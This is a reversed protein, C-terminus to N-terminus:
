DKSSRRQGFVAGIDDGLIEWETSERRRNPGFSYIYDFRRRGERTCQVWYPYNWPDLFFSARDENLGQAVLGAFTGNYLDDEGYKEVFSYVRKNIHRKGQCAQDLKLMDLRLANTETRAAELLEPQAGRLHESAYTLGYGIVGVVAWAVVVQHRQSGAPPPGAPRWRGLAPLAAFLFGLGMVMEVWEGSFDWPYSDFVLHAGLFVPILEVPPAEIAVKELFRRIPKSLAVLPLLVGYGLLVAKVALKRWDTSIVNHINLEQQFNQELFYNPPQYAFIRQAWSIEEMAVFFCFLSVGALFWPVLRTERRQRVAAIAFIAAAGLFAAFSAWELTQDEQVARYYADPDAEFLRSAYLFIGLALLNALIAAVPEIRPRGGPAASKSVSKARKAM